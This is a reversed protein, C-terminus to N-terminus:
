TRGEDIAEDVLGPPLPKANIRARFARVRDLKSGRRRAEYEGVRNRLCSIVAGELRRREGAPIRQIQRYLVDPVDKITLDAM